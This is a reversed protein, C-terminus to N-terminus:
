IKSYIINGLQKFNSICDNKNFAKTEVTNGDSNPISIIYDDKFLIRLGFPEPNGEINLVDIEKIETDIIGKFIESKSVDYYERGIILSDDEAKMWTKMRPYFEDWTYIYQPLSEDFIYPSWLEDKDVSIICLKNPEDKFVFGFSIDIDSENEEGWPAWIVLFLRSVKKNILEKFEIM